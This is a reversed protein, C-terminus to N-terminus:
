ELALERGDDCVFVEHLPSKLVGQHIAKAGPSANPDGARGAAL